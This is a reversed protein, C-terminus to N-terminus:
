VTFFPLNRTEWPLEQRKLFKPQLSVYLFQRIRVQMVDVVDIRGKVKHLSKPHLLFLPSIFLALRIPLERQDSNSSFKRLQEM